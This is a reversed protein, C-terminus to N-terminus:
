RSAPYITKWDNAMDVVTWGKGRAETMAKDLRGIHSDSDYAWEREADTHHIIMAYRAGEGATTWQLMQLDGDSNGFAAIPRRGIHHNIEVPKGEKDDIYHLQAQRVLVPVGNHIEFKSEISSGIVQQPPIGYVEETWPRMFEIGGGSVIWTQFGNDRLYDLLELMPQYVMANYKMGTKPHRANEMWDSTIAAFEDTTMGAHSAMMLEFIAKKGSAMVAQIDGELLGKYPQQEVWEPHDKALERIRDAAFILQFYMPQESWLTGDNDFVAIREAAPVFEPNGTETVKSVFEMVANKSAGENWSPLPDSVGAVASSSMLVWGWVVLILAPVCKGVARKKWLSTDGEFLVKAKEQFHAPRLNIYVGSIAMYAAFLWLFWGAISGGSSVLFATVAIAIMLGGILRLSLTRSVFDEGLKRHPEPMILGPIHLLFVGVGLWFIFAGEM